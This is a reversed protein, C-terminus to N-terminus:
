LPADKFADKVAERLTWELEPKFGFRRFAYASGEYAVRTGSARDLLNFRVKCKILRSFVLDYASAEISEFTLAISHPLPNSSVRYGKLVLAEFAANYLFKAPSSVVVRGLPLMLLYQHGTTAETVPGEVILQVPRQNLRSLTLLESTPTDYTVETLSCGSFLLLFLLFIRPTGGLRKM